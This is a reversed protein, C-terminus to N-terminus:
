NPDIQAATRLQLDVYGYFESGGAKFKHIGYVADALEFLAEWFAIIEEPYVPPLTHGFNLSLDYTGFELLLNMTGKADKADVPRREENRHGNKAPSPL